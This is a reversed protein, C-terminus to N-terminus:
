VEIRGMEGESGIEIKIRQKRKKENKENEMEKHM